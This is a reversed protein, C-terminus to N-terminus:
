PHCGAGFLALDEDPLLEWFSYPDEAIFAAEPWITRLLYARDGPVLAGFLGREDLLDFTAVAYAETADLAEVGLAGPAFVRVIRGQPAEHPGLLAFPDACRAQALDDVVSADLAAPHARAGEVPQRHIASSSMVAGSM